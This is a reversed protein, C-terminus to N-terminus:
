DELDVTPLGCAVRMRTWAAQVRGLAGEQAAQEVRSRIYRPRTVQAVETLSSSLALGAARVRGDDVHAAAAHVLRAARQVGSTDVPGPGMDNLQWDESYASMQTCAHRTPQYRVAYTTAVGFLTV